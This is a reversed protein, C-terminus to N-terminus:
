IGPDHYEEWGSKEIIDGNDDVAYRNDGDSDTRGISRALDSCVKKNGGIEDIRKETMPLNTTHKFEFWKSDYVAYLIAHRGQADADTLYLLRM